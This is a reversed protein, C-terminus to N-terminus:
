RIVMGQGTPLELVAYGREAFWRDHALKQNRYYLWGYDDLILVAGPTMRDFLAELVATEAEANNMDIHMFAIRNPAAVAFSEPAQGRTVTVNPLDSFRSRVQDYLGDGHETMAHHPMAPDHAFLDYLYYGKPKSGFDLYDCVIRASVGKYCACEVFDGELRLGSQAAWALVATRWIIGKEIKTQAHKEFASMFKQDTLFSLNKDLTILNDGTFTGQVTKLSLLLTRVIDIFRREDKYGFFLASHYQLKM